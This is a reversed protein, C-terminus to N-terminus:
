IKNDTNNCVDITQLSLEEVIKSEKETAKKRQPLVKLFSEKWTMGETVNLIIEFVHDITLVRRSKMDIYESIPLQAHAIKQEEAIKYCLGKHTNHDVLGGIIYVKSHDLETVINNSDSTLYVIESKSFIDLYSHRNFHVDWNKYGNNKSMEKESEGNFSSVFFQMPNSARRNLSYCHNLQKLCKCLDRNNMLHDFSFDIVVRLKCSSTAMTSLKLMKRSPGLTINNIRALAKKQKLKEKEKARKLPKWKEWMLKKVLKRKERKTMKSCDVNDLLGKKYDNFLKEKCLIKNSEVVHGDYQEREKLNSEMNM